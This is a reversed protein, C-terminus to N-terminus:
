QYVYNYGVLFGSIFELIDKPNNILDSINQALLPELQPIKQILEQQQEFTLNSDDLILSDLEDNLKTVL